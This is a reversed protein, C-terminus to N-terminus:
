TRYTLYIIFDMIQLSLLIEFFTYIKVQIIIFKKNFSNINRGIYDLSNILNNIYNKLESKYSVFRMTNNDKM